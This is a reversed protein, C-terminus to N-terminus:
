GDRRSTPATKRRSHIFSMGIGVFCLYFPVSPIRYRGWGAMGTILIFYVAMLLCSFLFSKNPLHRFIFLGIILCIYSIILYLAIIIGIIIEKLSKRYVWTEIFIFINPFSKMNILLHQWQLMEAYRATGLNVFYHLIGNIYHKAFSFPYKKIYQIALRQWYKSKQFDNLEKPNFGDKIILNNAENLLKDRVLNEEPQGTREMEMPSIDLLLLNYRGSTSLSFSNYLIYNRICWPSITVIFIFVFITIFKLAKKIDKRLLLLLNISIVVPIYILIPKVLTALGLFFAFFIFYKIANRNFNISITKSFYYLAVVCFFVLLIESYLTNSWFIFFPDLAYFLASYFAINSNLMQRIIIFLLLCSITDLFIQVLIVMWPKEGFISYILSIFAPYLPTRLTSEQYAWVLPTTEDKQYGFEHYKLLNNALKHYELADRSLILKDKVYPDWPKVAIFFLLRASLCIFGIIVILKFNKLIINM